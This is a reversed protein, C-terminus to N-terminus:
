IDLRLLYTNVPKNMHPKLSQWRTTKYANFSPGQARVDLSAYAREGSEVGCLFRTRLSTSQLKILM